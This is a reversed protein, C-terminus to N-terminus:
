TPVIMSGNGKGTSELNSNANSCDEPQLDVSEVTEKDLAACISASVTELYNFLKINCSIFIWIYTNHAQYYYFSWKWLVLNNEM